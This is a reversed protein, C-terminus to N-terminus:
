QQLQSERTQEPKPALAPLLTPGADAADSQAELAKLAGLGRFLEAPVSGRYRILTELTRPGNGDRIVGLGLADRPERRAIPPLESRQRRLFAAAIRDTRRHRQGQEHGAYKHPIPSAPSASGQVLGPAVKGGFLFLQM